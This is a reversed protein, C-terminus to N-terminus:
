LKYKRRYEELFKEGVGIELIEYELPILLKRGSINLIDDLKKNEFVKLYKKKRKQYIVVVPILGAM